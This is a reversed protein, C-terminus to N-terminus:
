SDVDVDEDSRGRGPVAGMVEERVEDLLDKGLAAVVGPEELM